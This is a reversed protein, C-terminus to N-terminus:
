PKVVKSAETLSAVIDYMNTIRGVRLKEKLGFFDLCTGCSFLEAGKGEIQALVALCPSGESALKVGGNIFIIRWPPHDLEKLTYLFSRMLVAGLEDDGRGITESAVFVAIKAGRETAEQIPGSHVGRVYGTGEREELSVRYGRSELFRRVNERAAGNDVLVTIEDAGGGEVMKKTEVVPVPCSMGRCDLLKM